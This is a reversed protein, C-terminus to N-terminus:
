QSNMEGTLKNQKFSVGTVLDSHDLEVKTPSLLFRLILKRNGNNLVEQYHKESKIARFKELLLESKM